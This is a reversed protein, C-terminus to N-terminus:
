ASVNIGYQYVELTKIIEEHNKVINSHTGFENKLRPTDEKLVEIVNFKKTKASELTTCGLQGHHKVLAFEGTLISCETSSLLGEKYLSEAANAQEELTMNTFDFERERVPSIKEAQIQHHTANKAAQNISSTNSTQAVSSPKYLLNAGHSAQVYM